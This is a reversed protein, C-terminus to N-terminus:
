IFTPPGYVIHRLGLLHGRLGGARQHAYFAELTCLASQATWGVKCGRSRSVGSNWTGKRAYIGDEAEGILQIGDSLEVFPIPDRDRSVGCLGYRENDEVAAVITAYAGEYINGMKQVQEMKIAEDEQEVCYKDVWLYRKGLNLTVTIADLVVQPAEELPCLDPVGWVFRLALYETDEKADIVRLPSVHRDILRIGFYHVVADIPMM